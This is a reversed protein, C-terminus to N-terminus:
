IVCASYLYVWKQGMQPGGCIASRTKSHEFTQADVTLSSFSLDTARSLALARRGFFPFTHAPKSDRIRNGRRQPRGQAVCVEHDFRM